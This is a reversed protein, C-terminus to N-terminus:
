IQPCSLNWVAPPLLCTAGIPARLRTHQTYIHACAQTHQTYTHACRHQTHRKHTNHMGTHTTHTCAQTHRTYTHTDHTAQQGLILRRKWGSPLIHSHQQTYSLSSTSTWSQRADSSGRQTGTNLHPSLGAPLWTGTTHASRAGRRGGM